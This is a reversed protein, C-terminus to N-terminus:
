ERWNEKRKEDRVLEKCANKQANWVELIDKAAKRLEWKQKKDRRWRKNTIRKIAIKDSKNFSGLALSPSKNGRLDQKM